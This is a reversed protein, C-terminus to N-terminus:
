ILIIEAIAPGFLGLALVFFRWPNAKSVRISMKNVGKTM